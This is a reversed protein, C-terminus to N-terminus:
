AASQDDREARLAGQTLAEIQYQRLIPVRGAVVWQSIAGQTVGLARAASAQTGGFAAIVDHPKMVPM